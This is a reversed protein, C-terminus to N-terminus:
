FKNNYEKKTPEIESGIQDMTDYGHVWTWLGNNLNYKWIDNLYGLNGNADIGNGGFVWLTQSSTWCASEARGGPFNSAVEEVGKTGYVGKQFFVFFLYFMFFLFFFFDKRVQHIRIM